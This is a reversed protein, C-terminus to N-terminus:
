GLVNLFLLQIITVFNKFFAKMFNLQDGFELLELFKEGVTPSIRKQYSKQIEWILGAIKAWSCNSTNLIENFFNSSFLIYLGLFFLKRRKCVNRKLLLMFFIFIAFFNFFQELNSLFSLRYVGMVRHFIIM